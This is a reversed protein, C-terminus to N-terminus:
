KSIKIKNVDLTQKPALTVVAKRGAHRRTIIRNRNAVRVKKRTRIINVSEVEVGYVKEVAKAVDIKNANQDVLFTYKRGAQASVSKETTVPMKIVNTLDM